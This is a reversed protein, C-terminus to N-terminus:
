CSPFFEMADWGPISGKVGACVAQARGVSCCPGLQFGVLILSMMVMMSRREQEMQGGCVLARNQGEGSGKQVM